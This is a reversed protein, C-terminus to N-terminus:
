NEKKFYKPQTVAIISHRTNAKCIQKCKTDPKNMAELAFKLMNKDQDPEQLLPIRMTPTRQQIPASIILM